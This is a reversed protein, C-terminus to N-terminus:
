QKGQAKSQILDLVKVINGDELNLLDTLWGDDNKFGMALMQDLAEMVKKSRPLPTMPSLNPYLVNGSTSPKTAGAAGSTPAGAGNSPTAADRSQSSNNIDAELDIEIPQPAPEEQSENPNYVTWDDEVLSNRKPKTTEADLNILTVNAASAAPATPAVPRATQTSAAAAAAAGMKALKPASSEDSQGNDATKKKPPEQKNSQNQKTNDSTQGSPEGQTASAAATNANTNFNSTSGAPPFIQSLDIRGLDIGFDALTNFIVNPIQLPDMNLATRAGAGQQQSAGCAAGCEKPDECGSPGSQGADGAVSSAGSGRRPGCKMGPRFYRPNSPAAQEQTTCNTSFDAALNNEYRHSWPCRSEARRAAKSIKNILRHGFHHRMNLPSPIRLTFHEGHVGKAECKSCLDFDHCGLCKYRFGQIPQDCIDCTVGEHSPGKPTNESAPASANTIYLKMVDENRSETLAITLEDDSAITVQDGDGDKWYIDFSQALSVSPFIARLKEKLYIFSTAVDPDLSFRRVEVKGDGSTKNLYAKFSVEGAM